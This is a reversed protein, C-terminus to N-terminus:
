RTGFYINVKGKKMDYIDGKRKKLSEMISIQAVMYVQEANKRQLIVENTYIGALTMSDSKYYM